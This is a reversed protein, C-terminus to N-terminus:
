PNAAADQEGTNWRVTFDLQLDDSSSLETARLSYGVTFNKFSKEKFFFKTSKWMKFQLWAKLDDSSLGIEKNLENTFDLAQDPTLKYYTFSLHDLHDSEPPQYFLGQTDHVSLSIDEPLKLILKQPLIFDVVKPNNTIRLKVGSDELIKQCANKTFDVTTANDAAYVSSALLLISLLYLRMSNYLRVGLEAAGILHQADASRM